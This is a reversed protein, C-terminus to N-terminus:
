VHANNPVIPRKIIKPWEPNQEPILAEIDKQWEQLKAYMRKVLEPHESAVNTMESVDNELDYLELTSDEFNEILKWKGSRMSAAPWGGQNSYHPYHWFIADRGLGGEQKLLPMMSLGDVHQEPMLSLGAAELFTPYFDCTQVVEDCVSGAGVVGPWRIIQCVRTGGEYNWGKGEALPFNCTPSGESTSLGGNDSTFCVITDDRLGEEDLADLVRGISTDLNEMM